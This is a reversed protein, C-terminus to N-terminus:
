QGSLQMAIGLALSSVSPWTVTSLGFYDKEGLIFNEWSFIFWREATLFLSSSKPNGNASLLRQWSGATKITQLPIASGWKCQAQTCWNGVSGVVGQHRELERNSNIVPSTNNLPSLFREKIKNFILFLLFYVLLIMLAFTYKEPSSFFIRKLFVLFFVNFVNKIPQLICYKQKRVLSQIQAGQM